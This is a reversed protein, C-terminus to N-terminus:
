LHVLARDLVSKGIDVALVNVQVLADCFNNSCWCVVCDDGSFTRQDVACTVNEYNKTKRTM